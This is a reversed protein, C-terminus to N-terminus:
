LRKSIANIKDGRKLYIFWRKFRGIWLRKEGRLLSKIREWMSIKKKFTPTYPGFHIYSSPETLEPLKWNGIEKRIPYGLNSEYWAHRRGPTIKLLSGIILGFLKKKM